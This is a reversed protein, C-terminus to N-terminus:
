DEPQNKSPPVLQPLARAWGIQLPKFLDQLMDKLDTSVHAEMVTDEARTEVAKLYAIRKGQPLKEAEKEALKEAWKRIQNWCKEPTIKEDDGRDFGYELNRKFSVRKRAIRTFFTRARNRAKKIDQEAKELQKIIEDAGIQKALKTEASDTMDSILESLLMEEKEIEPRLLDRIKSRFHDRQYVKLEAM